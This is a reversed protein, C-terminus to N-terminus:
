LTKKSKKTEKQDPLNTNMKSHSNVVIRYCLDPINRASNVKRSETNEKEGFKAYNWKYLTIIIKIVVTFVNEKNQQRVM